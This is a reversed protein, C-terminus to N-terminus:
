LLAQPSIHTQAAIVKCETTFSDSLAASFNIDIAVYTSMSTHWALVGVNVEKLKRGEFCNISCQRLM